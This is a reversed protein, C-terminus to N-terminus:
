WFRWRPRKADKSEQPKPVNLAKLWRAFDADAEQAPVM